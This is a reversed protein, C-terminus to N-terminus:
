KPRSPRPKKASAVVRCSAAQKCSPIVQTEQKAKSTKPSSANPKAHKAHAIIVQNRPPKSKKTTSERLMLLMREHAHTSSAQNEITHDRKKAPMVLFGTKHPKHMAVKSSCHGPVASTHSLGNCGAFAQLRAPAKPLVHLRLPSVVAPAPSTADSAARCSRLLRWSWALNLQCAHSIGQDVPMVPCPGVFVVRQDSVHSQLDPHCISRCSTCSRAKLAEQGMRLFNGRRKPSNASIMRNQDQLVRSQCPYSGFNPTQGHNWKGPCAM